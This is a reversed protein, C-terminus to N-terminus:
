INCQFSAAVRKNSRSRHYHLHQWKPCLYYDNKFNSMALEQAYRIDSEVQRAANYVDIDSINDFRPLAVAAVIGSIVLAMVLEIMTFGKSHGNVIKRFKKEVNIKMKEFTVLQVKPLINLFFLKDERVIYFLESVM